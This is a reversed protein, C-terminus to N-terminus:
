FRKIASRFSHFEGSRDIFGSISIISEPAHPLYEQVMPVSLSPDYAKMFKKYPYRNKFSKFAPRLDEARYVVLGKCPISLGIQTKPKIIVPYTLSKALHLIDEESRPFWTKPTPILLKSAIQSLKEKNLLTYTASEKPQYLVFFKRLEEQFHAIVWALDDSAPYLFYGPNKSGFHILWHAFAEVDSPAPTQYFASVFKSVGTLTRNSSDALAIAIGERGLDRAAALTGLHSGM